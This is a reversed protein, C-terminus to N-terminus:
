KLRVKCKLITIVSRCSRLKLRRGWPMILVTLIKNKRAKTTSNRDIEGM